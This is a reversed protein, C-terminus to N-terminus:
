GAIGPVLILKDHWYMYQFWSPIWGTSGLAITQETDLFTTNVRNYYKIFQLLQDMIQPDTKWDVNFFDFYPAPYFMYGSVIVNRTLFPIVLLVCCTILSILLKWKGSKILFYIGVISLILLPYNTIRVTFLYAPWIIWEPSWSFSKNKFFSEMFLVFVILTTIFDYNTNTANGRILPWIILSLALVFLLPVALSSNYKENRISFSAIIIYYSFWLSLTGNLGTFLNGQPFNFLAVNSFWSSNFGFRAHLNAIGPVSGQEQIWKIAQIHYSETDDMIVPGANIVLIMLWILCLLVKAMFPVSSTEKIILQAFQIFLKWKLVSYLVLLVFLICFFYFNVPMFLVALQSALTFMILGSITYFILPKVEKNKLIITYFIFGAWLCSITILIHILLLIIM